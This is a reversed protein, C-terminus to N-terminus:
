TTTSSSVSTTFFARLGSPNNRSADGNDFLPGDAGSSTKEATLADLTADDPANYSPLEPFLRGFTQKQAAGQSPALLATVLIALM